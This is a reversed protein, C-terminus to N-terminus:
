DCVALIAHVGHWAALMEITAPSRPHPRPVVENPRRRRMRQLTEIVVSGIVATKSALSPVMPHSVAQSTHFSVSTSTPSLVRHLHVIAALRRL